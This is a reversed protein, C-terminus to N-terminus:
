GHKAAQRQLWELAELEAFMMDSAIVNTCTKLDNRRIAILEDLRDLQANRLIRIQTIFTRIYAPDDEGALQDQLFAIRSMIEDDLTTSM